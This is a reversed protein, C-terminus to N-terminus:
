EIAKPGDCYRWGARRRRARWGAKFRSVGHAAAAEGVSGFTGFPTMVAKARPHGAGTRVAPPRPDHQCSHRVQDARSMAQVNDLAFPGDPDLRVMTFRNNHVVTKKRGRM